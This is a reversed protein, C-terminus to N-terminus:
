RPVVTVTCRIGPAHSLRADATLLSCDLAEALAIYGANYASVNARLQWMRELLGHVPYRTAALRRWTDLASWGSRESIQGALVRRRLAGTIESDILHPVHLQEIGLARRAENTEEPGCELTSGEEPRLRHHRRDPVPKSRPRAGASM